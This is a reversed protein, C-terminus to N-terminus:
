TLETGNTGRWAAAPANPSGCATGSERLRALQQGAVIGEIVPAVPQVTEEFPELALGRAAAGERPAEAGPGAHEGEEPEHPLTGMM